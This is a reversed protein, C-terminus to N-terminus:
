QSTLVVTGANPVSACQYGNQNTSTLVVPARPSQNADLFIFVGSGQLCVTIPNNFHTISTSGSLAFIDVALLVGRALVSANGIQYKDTIIRCYVKANTATGDPVNALILPNTSGNFDACLPMQNVSTATGVSGVSTSIVVVGPTSDSIDFPTPGFGVSSPVAYLSFTATPPEPTFTLTPLPTASAAVAIATPATTSTPTAPHNANSRILVIAVVAAICYCPSLLALLGIVIKRPTLNDLFKVM